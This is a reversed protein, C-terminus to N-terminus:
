PANPTSVGIPPHTSRADFRADAQALLELVEADTTQSFDDYWVGVGRFVPPRLLCVCEDAITAMARCAERSAVPVACVVAAPHRSRLAQVAAHMTAGTALGDDVVIVTKGEIDPLPRGRRYARERRELEAREAAVVQELQRVSIALADIASRDVVAIGGSAIAGIALEANMPAGLKRAVFVDLPVDLALAVEYGVPVGGRPLALVLTDNRGAYRALRDALLAGAQRRNPLRLM